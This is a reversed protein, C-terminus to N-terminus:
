LKTIIVMVCRQLRGQYEGLEKQLYQQARNVPASCREICGQVNDMSANKDDCCKAACLHMDGQTNEFLIDLWCQYYLFIFRLSFFTFKMLKGAIKTICISRFWRGHSDNGTRGTAATSWNFQEDKYNWESM